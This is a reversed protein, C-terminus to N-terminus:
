MRRLRWYRAVDSASRAVAIAAGVAALGLTLKAMQLAIEKWGRLVIIKM